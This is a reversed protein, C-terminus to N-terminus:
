LSRELTFGRIAFLHQATGSPKGVSAVNMPIRGQTSESINFLAPVTPLSGEVNWVNMPSRELTSERTSISTHARASPKGVSMVNM